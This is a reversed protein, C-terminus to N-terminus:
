FDEIGVEQRFTENRIRDRRIQGKTSRFYTEHNKRTNGKTIILTETNYIQAL